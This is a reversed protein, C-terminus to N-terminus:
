QNLIEQYVHPPPPAGGVYITRGGACQRGLSEPGSNGAAFHLATMGSQEHKELLTKKVELFRGVFVLLCIHCFFELLAGIHHLEM